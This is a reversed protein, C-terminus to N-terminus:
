VNEERGNLKLYTPAIRDSKKILGRYKIPTYDLVFAVYLSLHESLSQVVNEFKIM